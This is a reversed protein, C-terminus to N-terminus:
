LPNVTSYLVRTFYGVACRKAYLWLLLRCLGESHLKVAKHALFFKLLRRYDAIFYLFQLFLFILLQYASFAGCSSITTLVLILSARLRAPIGKGALIVASCLFSSLKFTLFAIASLLVGKAFDSLYMSILSTGLMSTLAITSRWIILGSNAWLLASRAIMSESSSLM